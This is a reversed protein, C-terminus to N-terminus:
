SPGNGTETFRAAPNSRGCYSNKNENNREETNSHIAEIAKETDNQVLFNYLSFYLERGEPSLNMTGMENILEVATRNEGGQIAKEIRSLTEELLGEQVVPGSESVKQAAEQRLAEYFGGLTKRIAETDERQGAEALLAAQQRLSDSIEPQLSITQVLATFREFYATEFEQGIDFSVRYHNIKDLLLLPSHSSNGGSIRADAEPRQENGIEKQEDTKTQGLWKVLVGDLEKVSIPKSLYDDFGEGLYYEKMGRTANATLAIAVTTYEENGLARIAKLTEIGDMEPMMHDIFLLKYNNKKVLEIAESGSAASDIHLGYPSLLGHAVLLNTPLDDVVLVRANPKSGIQNLNVTENIFFEKIPYFDM